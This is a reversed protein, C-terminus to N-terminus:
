ESSQVHIYRLKNYRHKGHRQHSGKYWQDLSDIAGLASGCSTRFKRKKFFIFLRYCYSGVSDNRLFDLSLYHHHAPLGM